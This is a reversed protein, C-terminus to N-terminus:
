ARPYLRIYRFAALGVGPEEPSTPVEAAIQFRVRNDGAHLTGAPPELHYERWGRVLCIEPARWGNVTVVMRSCVRRNEADTAPRLAIKLIGEGDSILRLTASVDASTAWSVPGVPEAPGDQWGDGVFSRAQPTGFEVAVLAPRSEDLASPLEFRTAPLDDFVVFAVVGLALMTGTVHRPLRQLARAGLAWAFGLLVSAVVDSLWHSGSLLRGVGQLLVLGAATVYVAWRMEPRRIAERLLLAALAATMAAGTTHGSPFSNGSVPGPLSNPRLREVATKLLEVIALGGVFVLGLRALRTPDRRGGCMLAFGVLVALGARVLVDIGRSAAIWSCSRHFQIWRFVGEDFPLVWRLSSIVALVALLTGVACMESRSM